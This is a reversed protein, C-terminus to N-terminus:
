LSHFYHFCIFGYIGFSHFKQLPLHLLKCTSAVCQRKSIDGGGLVPCKCKWPWLHHSSKRSCTGVEKDLSKLHVFLDNSSQLLIALENNRFRTCKQEWRFKATCQLCGFPREDTHIMLHKKLKDTTRCRFDCQDCKLKYEHGYHDHRDFYLKLFINVFM